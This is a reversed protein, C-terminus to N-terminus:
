KKRMIKYLKLLIMKIQGKFPMPMRRIFVSIKYALSDQIAFLQSSLVHNQAILETTNTDYHELLQHNNNVYGNLLYEKNSTNLQPYKYDKKKSLLMEYSAYYEDIMDQLSRISLKDLRNKVTQYEAPRSSLRDIIMLIDEPAADPEVVWGCGTRKTREGVAGLDTALVPVGCMWTESLTYCYTEPWISLICVLDINHIKMLDALQKRKYQGTKTLNEQKLLALETDGIIGFVYWGIDTSSKKILQCAIKSGKDSNMGGIFAINFKTKAPSATNNLHLVNGDTYYKKGSEIVVQIYLTGAQMYNMPITVSFGSYLHLKQNGAVDARPFVQAPLMFTKKKKDTIRIFINNNKSETYSLYAWGSLTYSSNEPDPLYDFCYKIHNTYCLDDSTLNTETIKELGHEIVHLKDKLSPYYYSTIDLAANSPTYIEDCYSLVQAFKSRWEQIYNTHKLTINHKKLLCLSCKESNEKGICVKNKEDLLKINPCIHYFDHLTTTLAVNCEKAIHYIDLSLGLTHHIHILEIHFASIINKFLEEMQRDHFVAYHKPSGINFKTEIYGHETYLTLRIYERDRALVYTNYMKKFGKVLDRVHLQTGGINDPSDHHFDSHLIYLINKKNPDAKTYLEINKRIMWNNDTACFIENARWLEPYRKKLIQINNSILKKKEESLFSVTGKHYIFTDDCMVHIYGLESALFCFDNEEGYGRKYTEEDFFGVREIVERKIFMCFGVATTIEPYRHLSCREIVEAYQDVTFGDPISNDQNYVPISCITASNSLPTVTGISNDSYACHVIKDIWGATVITDSNLLCVDRQSYAIGKNVSGSFGLNKTNHMVIFGKHKELKNIYPQIRNDSSCDNILIIRDLSLDTHKQISEICLKLDDYANYIPIIIDIGNNRKKNNM